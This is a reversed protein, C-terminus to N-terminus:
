LVLCVTSHFKLEVRFWNNAGRVTRGRQTLSCMWRPHQSQLLNPRFGHLVRPSLERAAQMASESAPFALWYPPHEQEVM